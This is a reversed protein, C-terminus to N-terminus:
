KRTSFIGMIFRWISSFTNQVKHVAQVPLPKPSPTLTPKPSPTITPLPSPTPTATPLIRPTVTAFNSVPGAGYKLENQRGMERLRDLTEQSPPPPLGAAIIQRTLFACVLNAISITVVHKKM